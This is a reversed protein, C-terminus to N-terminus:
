RAGKQSALPYACTCFGAGIATAAIRRGSDITFVAPAKM